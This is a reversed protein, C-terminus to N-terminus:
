ETLGLELLTLRYEHDVLMAATDDEETPEPEVPEPLTALYAELAEQNGAYSVVRLYLAVPEGTGETDLEPEVMPESEAVEEVEDSVDVAEVATEAEAPEEETVMPAPEVTEFEMTVFGMYQAYTQTELEDPWVAMHEPVYNLASTQIVGYNGIQDPTNNILKM